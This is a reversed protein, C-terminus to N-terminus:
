AAGSSRDLRRREESDTKISGSKTRRVRPNGARSMWALLPVALARSAAHVLPDLRSRQPALRALEAIADALIPAAPHDLGCPRVFRDVFAATASDRGSRADGLDNALLVAHEQLNRAARVFGGREIPLYRFHLTGGQSAAFAPDLVTHVPRGVIAAEIMASTNIGVVAHAHFLSDFYDSRDEEVLSNPTSRPWVAVRGFRSLDEHAWDATLFPHPRVLVGVDRLAPVGSRRLTELWRLVFRKEEESGRAVFGSSGAFLVFPSPEGLGVHECFAARDRSPARGFWRDFSQAGTVVVREPAVAHLEIAERRQDQNWVFVRDPKGHLLGKNTLNDWSAVCAGTPLGLARACRLVEAQESAGNVLPSVLVVDAGQERLFADLAPSTPLAREFTSLGRLALRLPIRPLRRFRDLFRLSPPLYKDRMRARLATTGEFRPDLFRLFNATGRIARALTATADGRLPLIGAIEVDPRVDTLDVPKKPNKSSAALVVHHGRARLVELTSDYHRLLEPSRLIFLIRLGHGGDRTRTMSERKSAIM